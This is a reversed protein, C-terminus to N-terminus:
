DNRYNELLYFAAISRAEYFEPHKMLASLNNLKWPVVEIPEPEDGPIRKEYLNQALVVTMFGTFYGPSASFKGIITLKKAGYGIEEMLERNATVIFGESSEVLGKPFGLIYDDVGAAYERVLLITEDDLMPIIMVSGHQPGCVREFKRQEGNSFQLDIQEITFLRTKAIIETELITPKSTM